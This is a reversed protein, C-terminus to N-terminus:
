YCNYVLGSGWKNFNKMQAAKQPTKQPPSVEKRVKM